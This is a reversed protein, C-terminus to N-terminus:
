LTAAMASRRDGSRGNGVHDSSRRASAVEGKAELFDNFSGAERIERINEVFFALTVLFILSFSAIILAYLRSRRSLFPRSLWSGTAKGSDTM